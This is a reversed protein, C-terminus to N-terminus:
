PSTGSNVAAGLREAWRAAMEADMQEPAKYSMDKLVWNIAERLRAVEAELRQCAKLTNTHAKVSDMWKDHDSM